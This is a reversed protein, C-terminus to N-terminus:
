KESPFFQKIVKVEFTFKKLKIEINDVLIKEKDVVEKGDIMKKFGCIQIPCKLYKSVGKFLKEYKDTLEEAQKYSDTGKELLLVLQFSKDNCNFEKKFTSQDLKKFYTSIELLARLLTESSSYNKFEILNIYKESQYVLDIAGDRKKRSIPTEYHLRKGLVNNDEEKNYFCIALRKETIKDENIWAYDSNNRTINYIENKSNKVFDCTRGDLLKKYKDGNILEEVVMDNYKYNKGKLNVLLTDGGDQNLDKISKKYFLNKDKLADEVLESMIEKNYKIAM